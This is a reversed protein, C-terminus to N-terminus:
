SRPNQWGREIEFESVTVEAVDGELFEGASRRWDAVVRGEVSGPDAELRAATAVYRDLDHAAVDLLPGPEGDAVRITAQEATAPNRALDLRPVPDERHEVALVRTGTPVTFQAIPSGSTLVHTVRHRATFAPDAALAAALIGGQSHGVLMVPDARGSRGARGRAVELAAAVGFAAVTPDQAMARVDSTVDFPNAEAEPWWEQTGPIEVVWASSGDAHVVELVRVRADGLTRGGAILDSVDVPRRRDRVDAPAVARVRAVRSGDTLWGFRGAAEAGAAVGKLLEAVAAERAAYGHAVATVAAALAHLAAADGLAGSPGVATGGSRLAQWWATRVDECVPAFLDWQASVLLVPSAHALLAALARGDDAVADGLARLRAAVAYLAEIEAGFRM